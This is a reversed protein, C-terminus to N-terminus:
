FVDAKVRLNVAKGEFDVWEIERHAMKTKDSKPFSLSPGDSDNGRLRSGM